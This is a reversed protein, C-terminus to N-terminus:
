RVKVFEITQIKGKEMFDITLSNGDYFGTTTYKESPNLVTVQYVGQRSSPNLQAILQSNAKDILLFSHNNMEVLAVLKNANKFEVGIGEIYDMPTPIGSMIEENASNIETEQNNVVPEIKQNAILSAAESPKYVGADKMALLLAEQYGRDFEKIKSVGGYVGVEKGKCDLFKLEVSNKLFKNTKLLDASLVICQNKQAEEPWSLPNNDLVTYANKKLLQKLYFNLQYQNEKFDSFKDPVKIYKYDNLQQASGITFFLILIIALLNKM